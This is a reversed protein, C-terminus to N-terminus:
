LSWHDSETKASTQSGLEPTRAQSPWKRVAGSTTEARREPPCSRSDVSPSAPVAEGVPVYLVPDVIACTPQCHIPGMGSITENVRASDAGSSRRTCSYRVRLHSVVM